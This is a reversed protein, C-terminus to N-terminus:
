TWSFTGTVNASGQGTTTFSSGPILDTNAYMLVVANPNNSKSNLDFSLNSGPCVLIADGLAKTSVITGGEISSVAAEVSDINPPPANCPLVSVQVDRYVYSLRLNTGRLYDEGRFALVYQGTASPTFNVSGSTSNLDFGTSSAIQNQVSSPPTYACPSNYGTYPTHAIVAISDGNPDYPGNLYTTPQNVCIYPLPNS